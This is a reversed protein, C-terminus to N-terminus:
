EEEELCRTLQHQERAVDIDLSRPDLRSIGGEGFKAKRAALSMYLDDSSLHVARLSRETSVSLLFLLVQLM